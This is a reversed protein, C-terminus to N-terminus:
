EWFTKKMGCHRSPHHPVNRSILIPYSSCLNVKVDARSNVESGSTQDTIESVKTDQLHHAKGAVNSLEAM